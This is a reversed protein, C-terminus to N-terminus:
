FLTAAIRYLQGAGYDAVYLNGPQDEGFTSITITSDLMVRSQWVGGNNKLGSIVGSCLDGYFYTGQLSPNGPGRFVYGGTVSCGPGHTYETVPLTLGVPSCTQSSYCHMGEMINWGYNEGGVSAAPQYNVEEYLNQGVDATYLDGNARDFAFKWPNRLGWAWIEARSNPVGVFPNSAPIQYTGPVSEVDIRLLKGLLTNLNQGNGFPDGGSGGDGFGIYLYGGPGFKILGGNHNGFPQQVTLLIVESDPDAINPDLTTQFMSIVSDGTNNTYSVYFRNKSAYGPPFAVSLLGREGCCSVRGAIDLFPTTLAMDNKFIRIRGGQEVVFVRNSNDNAHTIHVPLTFGGASRLLRIYRRADQVGSLLSLLLLIRITM